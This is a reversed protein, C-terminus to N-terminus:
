RALISNGRLWPSELAGMDPAAGRYPLSVNTGADILDSGTVLRLFGTSPLSGDTNRPRTMLMSDLSVFDADTLTVVGSWSNHTGEANTGFIDDGNEHAINNRSTVVSGQYFNIGYSGNQYVTNNYLEYKMDGSNEDIGSFRNQASINNFVFRRTTSTQTSAAEPGLKFGVGDGGTTFTGPQYGNWFSWNNKITFIGDIGFLDLGDDSCWWFRCGEVTVNTSADGGTCNFGNAGGWGTYQDGCHHIDNNLWHTSDSNFNYVGYGGINDIECREVIVGYSGDVQMGIVSNPVTEYQRLDTVRLGKFRVYDNNSCYLGIVTGNTGTVSGCDFVVTEGPYNQITIYNAATGTLNYIQFRQFSGAAESSEYTGGRIFVYDGPSVNGTIHEVTRWPSGISGDNGDNGSLSIYFSAYYPFVSRCREAYPTHINASALLPLLLLITLLKRM